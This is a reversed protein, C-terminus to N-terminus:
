EDDDDLLFNILKDSFGKKVEGSEGGNLQEKKVIGLLQKEEMTFLLIKSMAELM